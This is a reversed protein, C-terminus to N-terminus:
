RACTSGEALQLKYDQRSLRWEGRASLRSIELCRTRVLPAMSQFICLDSVTDLMEEVLSVPIRITVWDKAPSRAVDNEGLGYNVLWDNVANLSDPHPAVLEEVEEKSLHEGYRPHAPDSVEYLHRELDLFNHQPLGIRLVIIHDPSPISHRVWGRPLNVSEKLLLATSRPAACAPMAFAILAFLSLRKM